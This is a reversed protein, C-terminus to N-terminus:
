SVTLNFHIGIKNMLRRAQPQKMGIDSILIKETVDRLHEVCFVGQERLIKEFEVLRVDRLFDTLEETKDTM